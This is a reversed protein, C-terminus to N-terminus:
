EHKDEELQITNKEMEEAYGFYILAMRPLTDWVLLIGFTLLGLIFWLFFHLEFRNSCAFGRWKKTMRKAERFSVDRRIVVAAVFFRRAYLYSFLTVEGIVLAIGMWIMVNGGIAAIVCTVLVVILFLTWRWILMWELGLARRYSRWSSFPEFLMAVVIEEGDAARVAMRLFGVLLPFSLFAGILSVVALWALIVTDSFREYRVSEVPGLSAEATMATQTLVMYLMIQLMMVVLAEILTLRTEKRALVDGARKWLECFRPINPKKKRM